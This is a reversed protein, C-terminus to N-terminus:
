RALMREVGLGTAIGGGTALVLGLGAPLGGGLLALARRRTPM